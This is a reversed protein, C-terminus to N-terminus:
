GFGVAGNKRATIGDPGQGSIATNSDGHKQVVAGALRQVIDRQPQLILLGLRLGDARRLLLKVFQRDFAVPGVKIEAATFVPVRHVDGRPPHRDEAAVTHEAGFLGDHPRVSLGGEIKLQWRSVFVELTM